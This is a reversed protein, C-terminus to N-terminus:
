KKLAPKKKPKKAYFEKIEERAFFKLELLKGLMITEIQPVQMLRILERYKQYRNDDRNIHCPLRSVLEISRDEEYVFMEGIGSLFWNLDLRYREFLYFLYSLNPFTKGKEINTVTSQYIKLERALQSQTKGLAARFRALRKGVEKKLKKKGTKSLPPETM